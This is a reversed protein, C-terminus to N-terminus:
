EHCEAQAQKQKRLALPLLLSGAAMAKGVGMPNVPGMIGLHSSPCGERPM